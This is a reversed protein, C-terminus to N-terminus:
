GSHRPFLLPMVVVKTIQLCTLVYSIKVGFIHKEVRRLSTNALFNNICMEKDTHLDQHGQMGSNAYSMLKQSINKHLLILHEIPVRHRHRFSHSWISLHNHVFHYVKIILYLYLMMFDGNLM